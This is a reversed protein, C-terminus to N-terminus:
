QTREQYALSLEVIVKNELVMGNTYRGGRASVELMSQGIAEAAVAVKIPALVAYGIRHGLHAETETPLIVSPRYSIVRLSTDSALEALEREARAKERAWMMRSEHKAGSGSVYHFSAENEGLVSQWDTVFQLPFTLHIERYAEEDMGVASLGIAWFVADVDDLEALIASYDLYDKHIVMEVKGTRVGVEIRPSPRRTFVRVTDINADNIVAKLLGDGITGTAGFIAVTRHRDTDFDETPMPVENSSNVVLLAAYLLLVAGVFTGAIRKIARKSM